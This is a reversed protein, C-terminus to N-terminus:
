VGKNRELLCCDGYSYFRYGCAIAHRYASKMRETGAFACVLMFLTSQPLHFNTLLCDCVHFQHGPTIFLSTEGAFDHVKGNSDAVTELLRLVTTGVAVVRNGQERAGNILAASHSSIEGWEAHMVHDETDVAKVPLFTGAGVHLTLTTRQIGQADLSALIDNTFHLGATPAAVAGDRVSFITQYDEWDELAGRRARKIYPPLPMVGHAQLALNLDSGRRNFHLTVEGGEGKAVVTAAFEPAFEIRDDARLRRAPRAFARWRDPTERLHLTVEVQAKGRHGQLRAPIVRTDNFVVVDGPELLTPLERVATDRLQDCIHLLRAADRPRVPHQAIRAPPLEFDFDSVKM